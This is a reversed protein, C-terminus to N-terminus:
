NLIFPTAYHVNHTSNSAMKFNDDLTGAVNGHNKNNRHSGPVYYFLHSDKAMLHGRCSRLPRVVNIFVCIRQFLVRQLYIPFM